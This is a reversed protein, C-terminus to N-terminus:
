ADLNELADRFCDSKRIKKLADDSSSEGLTPLPAWHTPAEGSDTFANCAHNVWPQLPKYEPDYHCVECRLPTGIYGSPGFLLIYSGDKPATEIPKLKM